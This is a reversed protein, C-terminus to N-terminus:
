EKECEIVIENGDSIFSIILTNGEFKYDMEEFVTNDESEYAFCLKGAEEDYEYTGKVDFIEVFPDVVMSQMDMQKILDKLMLNYDNYGMMSAIEDMSYGYGSLSDQLYADMMEGLETEYKEVFAGISAEDVYMEVEGEETFSFMIDMTLDELNMYDEMEADAAIMFDVLIETIDWTGRWTGIFPNKNGCATLLMVVVLALAFVISRKKM